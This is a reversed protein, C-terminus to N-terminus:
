ASAEAESVPAEGAAVAPDMWMTEWVHGDLDTFSRSYMFGLDQLPNVDAKGGGAGATDAFRDVEVKSDCSLALMVESSGAPPIPRTTFSRWKDHTLLMVFITDSLVMCAATEDTFRPENAFGLTEYFAKSRGLDTVPLNVFIMRSM